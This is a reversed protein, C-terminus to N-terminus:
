RLLERWFLPKEGLRFTPKEEPTDDPVIVFVTEMAFSAMKEHKVTARILYGYPCAPGWFLPDIKAANVNKSDYELDFVEVSGGRSDNSSFIRLSNFDTLNEDSAASSSRPRTGNKLEHEIYRLAVNTLSLQDSRLRVRHIHADTMDRSYGLFTVLLGSWLMLLSFVAM